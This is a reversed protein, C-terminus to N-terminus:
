DYKLELYKLKYKLYKEYYKRYKKPEINYENGGGVLANGDGVRTNQRQEVPKQPLRPLKPLEALLFLRLQLNIPESSKEILLKKLNDGSVQKLHTAIANIDDKFKKENKEILKKGEEGLKEGVEVVGKVIGTFIKEAQEQTDKIVKKTKEDALPKAQSTPNNPPTNPRKGGGVM